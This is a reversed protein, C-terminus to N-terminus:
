NSTVELANMLKGATGDPNFVWLNYLGTALGSPISATIETTDVYVVQSLQTTLGDMGSELFVLPTEQFGFMGPIVPDNTEVTIQTSQNDPVSAPSVMDLDISLIDSLNFGHNLIGFNTNRTVIKVHFTGAVLGMPLTFFIRDMQDEGWLFPISFSTDNNFLFLSDPIANSSLGSVIITHETALDVFSMPPIITDIVIPVCVNGEDILGDCNNDIGDCIEIRGMNILGDTDDCDTSDLIFISPPNTGSPVWLPSTPDGFLDQDLDRYYFQGSVSQTLSVWTSGNWGEFDSGTWRITGSEPMSEGSDGLNISGDVELKQSFSPISLVTIFVM